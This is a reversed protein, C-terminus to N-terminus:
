SFLMRIITMLNQFLHRHVSLSNIVRIVRIVRIVTIVTIVMIIGKNGWRVPTLYETM